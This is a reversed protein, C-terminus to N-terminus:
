AGTKTIIIDGFDLRWQAGAELRAIAQDRYLEVMRSTLFRGKCHVAELAALTSVSHEFQLTVTNFDFDGSNLMDLLQEYTLNRGAMTEFAFKTDDILGNCDERITHAWSALAALAQKESAAFAIKDEPTPTM